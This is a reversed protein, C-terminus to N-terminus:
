KVGEINNSVTVIISPIAPAFATAPFTKIEVTTTDVAWMFEVYDGAKLSLFFNAASFIEADNGQIRVQSCSNAIDVGNKRPWIYFLGVGGSTKDIQVSFQFDYVGEQDVYIRSAPSGLYVGNSLDTTNYTIAYATNIAAATQTTTDYFQGHRSRKFERPPPAMLAGDLSVALNQILALADNIKSELAGISTTVDDALKATQDLAQTAKADVAGCHALVEDSLSLVMGIAQIAAAQADGAQVSIGATDPETAVTDAVAFLREFQKIQEFDKLFTSLQDRTLNLKLNAM